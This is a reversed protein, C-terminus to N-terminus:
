TLSVIVLRIQEFLSLWKEQGEPAFNKLRSKM